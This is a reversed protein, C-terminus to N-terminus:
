RINMLDTLVLAGIDRAAMECQVKALRDRRL